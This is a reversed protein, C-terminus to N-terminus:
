KSRVDLHDVTLTGISLKEIRAELVRLRGIALAGVALAGIATAGIAVAGVALARVAARGMKAKALGYPLEDLWKRAGALDTYDFYRIEARTFPKSLTAMVSQWKREGVMACRDISSLGAFHARDFKLEDWLAFPEWGHFDTMEFLVRLPELRRLLPSVQPLIRDYEEKTLVGSVEFVVVRGNDEEKLQIPM